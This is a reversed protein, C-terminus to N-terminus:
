FPWVLMILLKFFTWINLYFYISIPPNNPYHLLNLQLCKQLQCEVGQHSYLNLQESRIRSAAATDPFSDLIAWPWMPSWPPTGAVPKAQGAKVVATM